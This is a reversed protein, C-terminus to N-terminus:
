SKEELEIQYIVRFTRSSGPQLKILGMMNNFANPAASLNEIAISNRHPPIFLQLYSYAPNTFFHIAVKNLPNRVTCVPKSEDIRLFFCSDLKISGIKKFENFKNYPQFHGTPVLKRDFELMTIAPFYLEWDDVKGGLQFYPHWGDAIPIEEQSHNSITTEVELKNNKFVSYRVECEYHFPYGSDTGNYSNTLLVSATEEDAFEDAIDFPQDFLLGHLATGDRFMKNLKFKKGAFKYEGNPIRCPWPSLKVGKFWDAAATASVEEAPYSDIVNMEQGSLQLQIAHLMAGVSPVITATFVDDHKLHIFSRGNVITHEVNFPM